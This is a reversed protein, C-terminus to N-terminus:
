DEDTLIDEDFYRLQITRTFNIEDGHETIGRLEILEPRTHTYKGIHAEYLNKNLSVIDLMDCSECYRDYNIYSNRDYQTAVTKFHNDIQKNREELAKYITEERSLIKETLLTKKNKMLKRRLPEGKELAKRLCM